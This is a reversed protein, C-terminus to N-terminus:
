STAARTSSSNQRPTSSDDHKLCNEAFTKSNNKSPDFEIRLNPDSLQLEYLQIARLKATEKGTKGRIFKNRWPQDKLDMKRLEGKGPCDKKPYKAIVMGDGIYIACQEYTEDRGGLVGVFEKPVIPYVKVEDGPNLCIPGGGLSNDCLSSSYRPERMEIPTEACLSCVSGM